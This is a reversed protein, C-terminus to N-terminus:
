AEAGALPHMLQLPKEHWRAIAIEAGMLVVGISEIIIHQVRQERQVFHTIYATIEIM